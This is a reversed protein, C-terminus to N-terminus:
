ESYQYTWSNWGDWNKQNRLDKSGIFVWVCAALNSLLIV